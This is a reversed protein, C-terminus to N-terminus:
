GASAQLWAVLKPHRLVRPVKLQSSAVGAESLLLERLRAFTGPRVAVVSVPQLMGKQRFLAYLPNVSCLEEDLVAADPAAAGPTHELYV